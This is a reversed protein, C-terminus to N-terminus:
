DMMPNGPLNEIKASTWFSLSLFRTFPIDPFKILLKPSHTVEGMRRQNEPSSYSYMQFFFSLAQRLEQNNITLPSLFAKMLTKVAKSLIFPHLGFLLAVSVDISTIIGSLILKSTGKCLTAKVQPDQEELINALLFETIVELKTYTTSLLSCFFLVAQSM